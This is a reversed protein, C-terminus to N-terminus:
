CIRGAATVMVAASGWAGSLPCPSWARVGLVLVRLLDCHGAGDSRLKVGPASPVGRM